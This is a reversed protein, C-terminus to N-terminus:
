PLSRVPKVVPPNSILLKLGLQLLFAGMGEAPKDSSAEVWMYVCEIKKAGCLCGALGNKLLLLMKGGLERDKSIGM